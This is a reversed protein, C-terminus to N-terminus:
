ADKPPSLRFTKRVEKRYEAVLVRLICYSPIALVMGTVGAISGGLMLTGMVVLPPVDVSESMVKPSILFGEAMQILMFSGVVLGLKLTVWQASVTPDLYELLTLIVGPALGIVPGLYPVFGFIGAGLGILIAFPVRLILMSVTVLGGVFLCVTAQGRIFGGVSKDIDSLISVVKDQYADPLLELCSRKFAAFDLLMYFMIVFLLSLYVLFSVAGGMRGSIWSWVGGAGGAVMGAGRLGYTAIRGVSALTFRHSNKEFWEVWYSPQLFPFPRPKLLQVSVLHFGGGDPPTPQIELRGSRVTPPLYVEWSREDRAELGFDMAVLPDRSDAEFFLLGLSLDGSGSETTRTGSRVTLTLTADGVLGDFEQALAWEQTSALILVGPAKESPREFPAEPPAMWARPVEGKWDSFEANELVKGEPFWRDARPRFEKRISPYIETRVWTAFSASERIIGPVVYSIVAGLLGVLILILILIAFARHMRFRKRHKGSLRDIAPNLLYAFVFALAFPSLTALIPGGWLWLCLGVLLFPLLVLAARYWGGGNERGGFEIEIRV